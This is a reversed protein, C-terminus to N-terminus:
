RWTVGLPDAHRIPLQQQSVLHTRASVQHTSIQRVSAQLSHPSTPSAQLGAWPVFSAPTATVVRPPVASFAGVTSIGQPIQVQQSSVQASTLRSARAPAEEVYAAPAVFSHGSSRYGGVTGYQKPAAVFLDLEPVVFSHGRGGPSLEGYAASDGNTLTSSEAPAPGPLTLSSRRNTPARTHTSRYHVSVQSAQRQGPYAQSQKRSLVVDKSPLRVSSISMGNERNGDNFAEKVQTVAGVVVRGHRGSASGVTAMSRSLQDVASGLSVQPAGLTAIGAPVSPPMSSTAQPAGQTAIGAPVVPPMSSTPNVAPASVANPMPTPSLTRARPGGGSARSHRSTRGGVELRPGDLSSRPASMRAMIPAPVGAAPAGESPVDAEDSHLSITGGPAGDTTSQLSSEETRETITTELREKKGPKDYEFGFFAGLQDGASIVGRYADLGRTCWSPVEVACGLKQCFERAFDVCNLGYRNYSDKRFKEEGLQVCIKSVEHENLRTTGMNEAAKFTNGPGPYHPAHKYVGSIESGV